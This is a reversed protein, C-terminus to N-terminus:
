TIKFIVKCLNDPHFVTMPCKNSIVEKLTNVDVMNYKEKIFKHCVINCGLYGKHYSEGYGHNTKVQKHVNCRCKPYFCDSNHDKNEKEIVDNLYNLSDKNKMFPIYYNVKQEDVIYMYGDSTGFSSLFDWAYSLLTIKRRTDLENRVSEFYTELLNNLSDNPNFVDRINQFKMGEVFHKRREPEEIWGLREDTNVWNIIEIRNEKLLSYPCKTFPDDALEKIRNPSAMIEDNMVEENFWTDLISYENTLDIYCNKHSEEPNECNCKRQLINSLMLLSPYYINTPFMYTISTQKKEEEDDDEDVIYPVIVKLYKVDNEKVFKYIKDGIHSKEELSLNETKKRINDSLSERALRNSVEVIIDPISM